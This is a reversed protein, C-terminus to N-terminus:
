NRIFSLSSAQPFTILLTKPGWPIADGVGQNDLESLTLSAIVPPHPSLGQGLLPRMLPLFPTRGGEDNVGQEEGLAWLCALM